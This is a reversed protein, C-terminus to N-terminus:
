YGTESNVTQSTAWLPLTADSVDVVCVAAFCNRTQAFGVSSTDIWMCYLFAKPMWPFCAAECRWTSTRVQSTNLSISLLYEIVDESDIGTKVEFSSGAYGCWLLEWCSNVIVHLCCNSYVPGRWQWTMNSVDTWWWEDGSGSHLERRSWVWFKGKGCM